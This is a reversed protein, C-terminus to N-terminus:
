IVKIYIYILKCHKLDWVWDGNRQIMWPDEELRRQRMEKNIGCSNGVREVDVWKRREGALEKQM